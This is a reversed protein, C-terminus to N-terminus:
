PGNGLDDVYLLVSSLSWATGAEFDVRVSLSPAVVELPIIGGPLTDPDIAYPTTYRDMFREDYGISFSPLGTGIFDFGSMHKTTGVQGCDLYNWQVFGPFETVDGDVAHEDYTLTKDFVNIADGHRFYLDNGLLAFETIQFPFSYRSWSGSKGKTRTHVFVDTHAEVETGPIFVEVLFNYSSASESGFNFSIPTTPDVDDLEMELPSPAFNDGPDVAENAQVQLDVDVWSLEALAGDGPDTDWEVATFRVLVTEGGTTIRLNFDGNGAGEYSINSDTMVPDEGEFEFVLDTEHIPVWLGDSDGYAFALLYQGLSPYYAGIPTIGNEEAEVMAAQVLTDVPMGIDGASLNRSSGSMGVSRVGLAALYIMDDAVAVAARQYISGIGEMQDIQAMLEPDPDVMWNQLSSANMPILNGRYPALVAMDNANAQQLGTALFGADAESTWDLPNIAASFRVIDEDVAFVHQAMIAVVKTNPCNEDEVRRSTARWLITNDPITGGPVLPWDPETPGSVLIPSATWEVRTGAMAEWIVENDVVQVGVVTPWVPEETGSSGTAPQVAKYILGATTAPAVYNWTFADIWLPDSGGARFGIARVAVFAAGAPAVGTVTSQRWAGGSASDIMTGLSESIEVDGSDFWALAVRAGAEGASSAGQQVQCTATISQGPTVPIHDDNTIKGTGTLNWQASWSGTFPSVMAISWGVDKTWDVDGSEFGPNTIATSIPASGSVPQVVSGTPYLTGPQWTGIPM